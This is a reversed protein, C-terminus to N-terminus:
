RYSRDTGDYDTWLFWWHENLREAKVINNGDTEEYLYQEAEGYFEGDETYVLEWYQGGLMGQADIDFHVLRQDQYCSYYYSSFHGSINKESKLADTALEEMQVQQKELIRECEKKAASYTKPMLSHLLAAFGILLVAAAICIFSVFFTKKRKNM